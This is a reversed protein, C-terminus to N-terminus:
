RMFDSAAAILSIKPEATGRSRPFLRLRGSRVHVRHRVWTVERALRSGLAWELEKFCHDMNSEVSMYMMIVVAVM